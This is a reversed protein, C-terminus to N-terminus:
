REHKSFIVLKGTFPKNQGYSQIHIYDALNLSGKAKQAATIDQM